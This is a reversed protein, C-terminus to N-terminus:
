RRRTRRGHRVRPFTYRMIILRDNGSLWGVEIAPGLKTTPAVQQVYGIKGLKTVSSSGSPAVSATFDLPAPRDRDRDLTLDPYAAASAQVDCTYTDNSAAAAAVNFSSGLAANIVHFDLLLCAGGAMAAVPPGSPQAESPQTESPQTGSPQSSPPSDSPHAGTSAAASPNGAAGLSSPGGSGSCGSVTGLALTACVVAVARLRPPLRM